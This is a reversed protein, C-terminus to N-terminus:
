CKRACLIDVTKAGPSRSIFYRQYLHTRDLIMKPSLKMQVKERISDFRKKCRESAGREQTSSQARASKAHQRYLLVPSNM